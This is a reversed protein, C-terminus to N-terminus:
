DRKECWDELGKRGPLKLDVENEEEQHAGNNNNNGCVKSWSYSVYELKEKFKCTVIKQFVWFERRWQRLGYSLTATTHNNM